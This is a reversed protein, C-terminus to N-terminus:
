TAPNPSFDRYRDNGVIVLMKLAFAQDIFPSTLFM